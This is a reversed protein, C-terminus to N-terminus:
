DNLSEEMRTWDNAVIKVCTEAITHYIKALYESKKWYINLSEETSIRSPLFVHDNLIGYVHYKGDISICYRNLLYELNIRHTNLTVTKMLLQM